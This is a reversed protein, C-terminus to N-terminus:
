SAPSDLRRRRRTLITGLRHAEREPQQEARRWTVRVTVPDAALYYADRERDDEFAERNSHFGWSDLEVIVRERPFYADVTYRGLEANM